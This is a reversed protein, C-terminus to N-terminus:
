KNCRKCTAVLREKTINRKKNILGCVTKNDTYKRVFHIKGVIMSLYNISM